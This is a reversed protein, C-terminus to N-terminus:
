LEVIELFYSENGVGTVRSLPTLSQADVLWLVSSAPAGRPGGAVLVLAGDATVAVGRPCSPSGAPGELTTRRAERWQGDAGRELRSLTGTRFCAAFASRGDPAFAVGMPRSPRGDDSGIVVAVPAAGEGRRLAALDLFSVSNGEEGTRPCERNAVVAQTGDPSAAIGFPGTPLSFRVLPPHPGGSLVDALAFVSVTGSGGDATLVLDPVGRAIAIGAPNPFGGFGEDPSPRPCPRGAHPLVFNHLVAPAAMDIVSVEFGGDELGEGEGAAVLVHRGDPTVVCGVPGFTRTPLLIDPASAQGALAARLDFLAVAGAHGHPCGQMAQPATAGAHNVVLLRNLAPVASLSVPLGVAAFRAGDEGVLDPTVRPRSVVARDSDHHALDLATDIDVVAVSADWRGSVLAFRRARVDM